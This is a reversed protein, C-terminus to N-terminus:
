WLRPDVVRKTNKLIIFITSGYMIMMDGSNIVGVSLAEAAADITGTTVPTGVLLGTAESAKQTVSGVIENSWKLKPLKELSIIETTLKDTWNQKSIDYLPSFNAATYHDIVYNDTM